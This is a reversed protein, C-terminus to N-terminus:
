SIDCKNYRGAATFHQPPRRTACRQPEADQADGRQLHSIKRAQRLQEEHAFEGFSESGLMAPAIWMVAEIINGDDARGYRMLQSSPNIGVGINYAVSLMLLYNVVCFFAGMLSNLLAVNESQLAQRIVKTIRSFIWYVIFYIAGGGVNSALYYGGRDIWSAPLVGIAVDAAADCFIHACVVGFALGFLSTVMGTLGHRYGRVVGLIAVAIAIIHFLADSM